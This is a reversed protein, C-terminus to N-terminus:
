SITFYWSYDLVMGAGGPAWCRVQRLVMVARLKTNENELTAQIFISLTELAPEWGQYQQCKLRSSEESLTAASPSSVKSHMTPVTGADRAEGALDLPWVSRGLISDM